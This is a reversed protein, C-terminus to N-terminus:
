VRRDGFYIGQSHHTASTSGDKIEITRLILTEIKLEKCLDPVDKQIIHDTAPLPHEYLTNLLPLTENLRRLIRYKIQDMVSPSPKQATFQIQIVFTVETGDMLRSTFSDLEHFEQPPPAPASQREFRSFSMNGLILAVIGILLASGEQNAAFLCAITISMSLAAIAAFLIASTYNSPQGIPQETM